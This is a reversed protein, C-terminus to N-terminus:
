RVVMRATTLVGPEGLATTLLGRRDFRGFVGAIIRGIGAAAGTRVVVREGTGLKM